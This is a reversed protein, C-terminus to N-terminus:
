GEESFGIWQLLQGPTIALDIEYLVKFFAKTDIVKVRMNQVEQTPVGNVQVLAILNEYGVMTVVRQGTSM